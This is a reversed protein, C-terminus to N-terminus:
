GDAARPTAPHGTVDRDTGQASRDHIALVLGRWVVDKPRVPGDACRRHSAVPDVVRGRLPDRAGGVVLPSPTRNRLRTIEDQRPLRGNTENNSDGGSALDREALPGHKQPGIGLGHVRSVQVEEQM